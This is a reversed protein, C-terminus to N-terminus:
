LMAKQKGVNSNPGVALVLMEGSGEIVKTGSILFPVPKPNEKSGVAFKKMPDPEGTISSEDCVMNNGKLLIGDIPFIEGTEIQMIDGVLM